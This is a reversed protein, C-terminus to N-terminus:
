EGSEAEPAKAQQAIAEGMLGILNHRIADATAHVGSCIAKSSSNGHGKLCVGNVGLLQAGGLKDASMSSGFKQLAGQIAAGEEESTVTSMLTKAVGKTIAKASGEFTKLAVNGTFGDTVVVDYTGMALDYGEANGVFGPVTGKMAEHCKQAFQSGKTEETGINLLAVKPDEVHLVAQAYARGMLAFQVIYEPKCDANAGTDGFATYGKLGPLPVVTMPRRVGKIRGMVLTAAAMVAGTSGASYFGQAEGDAVLRCGVVISSDKKARVAQAPHESMSIVETTPHAIVREHSAAFPAIVEDPGTLVVVIGPDERVAAEVGELVVGPADDGGMADVVLKVQDM